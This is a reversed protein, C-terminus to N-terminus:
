ERVRYRLDTHGLRVYKDYITKAYNPELWLKRGTKLLEINCELASALDDFYKYTKLYYDVHQQYIGALELREEMSLLGYRRFLYTFLINNLIVFTYDGGDNPHRPPYVKRFRDFLLPKVVEPNELLINIYNGLTYDYYNYRFKLIIEEIQEEPPLKRFEEYEDAYITYSIVFLLFLLSIKKMTDVLEQCASITAAM